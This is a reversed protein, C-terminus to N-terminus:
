SSMGSAELQGGHVHRVLLHAPDRQTGHGVPPLAAPGAALATVAVMQHQAGMDDYAVGYPWRAPLASRLLQGSPSTAWGRM